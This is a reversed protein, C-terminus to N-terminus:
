RAGKLWEVIEAYREPQDAMFVDPPTDFKRRNCPLCSPVINKVSLTGGLALPIFHEKELALGSKGCYVCAEGWRKLARKWQWPTISKRRQANRKTNRNRKRGLATADDHVPGAPLAVEGRLRALTRARFAAPDAASPTV